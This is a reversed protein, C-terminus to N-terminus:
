VGLRRKLERRDEPSMRAIIALAQKVTPARREDGILDRMARNVLRLGGVHRFSDFGDPGMEYKNPGRLAERLDPDSVMSALLESARKHLAPDAAVRAALREALLGKRWFRGVIAPAKRIAKLREIQESSRM